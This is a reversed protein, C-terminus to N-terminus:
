DNGTYLRAGRFWMRCGRVIGVISCFYRLGVLEHLVWPLFGVWVWQRYTFGACKGGLPIIVPLAPTRFRHIPLLDLCAIVNAAVVPAERVAIAATPPLLQRTGPSVFAACDGLAFVNREGLVLFDEGVRVRGREDCAFGAEKPLAPPRIGGTWVVLDTAIVHEPGQFGCLLQERSEGTKLPRPIITVKGFEVRQICADVLIHMGFAHLRRLAVRSLREPFAALLRSGAEVVTIAFCGPAIVRRRRLATLASGLEAAFEVGTAGGGGIVISSRDSPEGRARDVIELIRRRIRLADATGKLPIAHERLGPIGYYETEAGLALVLADYTLVEGGRLNLRRTFRDIAVVEDCRYTLRHGHLLREYAHLDVTTAGALAREADELRGASAAGTAVEYLFAHFEHFPRKDILTVSLDDAEARMALRRALGLGGFGAGIIVVTRPM